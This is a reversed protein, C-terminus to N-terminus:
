HMEFSRDLLAKQLLLFVSDETSQCVILHGSETM